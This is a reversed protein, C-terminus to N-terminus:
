EGSWFHERMEQQIGKLTPWLAQRIFDPIDKPKIKNFAFDGLQSDAELLWGLAEVASRDLNKRSMEQMIKQHVRTRREPSLTDISKELAGMTESFDEISFRHQREEDSRFDDLYALGRLHRYVHVMVANVLLTDQEEETFERTKEYLTINRPGGFGYQMMPRMGGPNMSDIRIDPQLMKFGMETLPTAYAPHEMMAHHSRPPSDYVFLGGPRLRSLSGPSVINTIFNTYVVDIRDPLEPDGFGDVGHWEIGGGGELKTTLHTPSTGVEVEMHQEPWALQMRRQVIAVEEADEYMPDVFHHRVGAPAMFLTTADVGAGEYLWEKDLGRESFAERMRHLTSQDKKSMTELPKAQWKPEAPMGKKENRSEEAAHAALNRDRFRQRQESLM